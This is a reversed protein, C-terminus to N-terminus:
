STAERGGADDGAAVRVRMGDTVADLPSLVVADGASLGDAVIVNEPGRRLVEVERFRLRQEDNAVWVTSTGRLAEAPLVYVDEVQRGLIEAEVFQGVALPPRDPEAPDRAYPDDVRAVVHVVRSRPDIEGETRVIRGRWEHWAGAFRARLIVEPGHARHEGRYGLPLDLHALDEDPLPLRVEAADVAYITAIPTGRNVFQGVDVQKSRVRGAYPAVIRTRGVDRQAREVEAEAAALASRAEEVQPERLTLPSPEDDERALSEWERRAVEASALEQELRVRAQALRARAAALSQRYDAPDIEALVDGREFFGGPALSPDVVVIRGAVESVLTTETRPVVTGQAEVRLRLTEPSATVTRVAPPLPRPATPRVNERANVIAVAAAAGAALVLIPLAIQLVVRNRKNM